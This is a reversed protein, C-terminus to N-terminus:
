ESSRKRTMLPRAGCSVSFGPVFTFITTSHNRDDRGVGISRSLVPVWVRLRDITCPTHTAAKRPRCKEGGGRLQHHIRRCTPVGSISRIKRSTTPRRGVIGRRFTISIAPMNRSAAGPIACMTSITRASCTADLGGARQDLGQRAHAHRGARNRRHQLCGLQLPPFRARVIEGAGAHSSRQRPHRAHVGGSRRLPRVPTLGAHARLIQDFRRRRRHFHACAVAPAAAHIAIEGTNCRRAHGRTGADM